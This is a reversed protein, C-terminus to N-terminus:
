KTTSKVNLNGVKQFDLPPSMTNVISSTIREVTWWTGGGPHTQAQTSCAAFAAKNGHTDCSSSVLGRASQSARWM